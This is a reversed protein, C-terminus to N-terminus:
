WVARSFLAARLDRDSRDSHRLGPQDHEFDLKAEWSFLHIPGVLSRGVVHPPPPQPHRLGSWYHPAHLLIWPSLFIATAVGARMVWRWGSAFLLFLLHIAVFIIFTPKM